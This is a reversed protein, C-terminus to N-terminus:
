RAGAPENDPLSGLVRSLATELSVPDGGDASCDTTGFSVGDGGRVPASRARVVVRTIPSGSSTSHDLAVKLSHVRKARLIEGLERLTTEPTVLPKM